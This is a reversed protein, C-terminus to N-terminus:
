RVVKVFKTEYPEFTLNAEIRLLAEECVNVESWSSISGDPFISRLDLGAGNGAIERLHLIVGAKDASPRASILLLNSGGTHLMSISALKGADKRAPLVRSVFPMRSGWGFRGAIAESTDASSTLYYSFRLEGEQSAKFNTVWYNNMVWSYVHPKNVESVYQFKGTNIEGFQMLPIEDSGIVVQGLDGSVRAFGQVTNWDSATGPLQNVGPTVLGGQAEYELRAGPMNLPFAVYISEPDTIGKRMIRFHFEIRKAVNYLRIECEVGDDGLCCPSNGVITLSKWLEGEVSGNVRVNALTTRTYDELKFQELQHRNGLTEYIFQGFGYLADADVLELNLDKDFLSTVNGTEPDIVLRYYDNELVSDCNGSQSVSECNEDSVEIRYTKFGFSPIDEVWLGWYSGDTRGSLWHAKIQSGEDDVIRFRKEKPIITHDIYVRHFGSRTWNLTNFISITPVEASTLCPQLLGMTMERLVRLDKVASWVYASKEAWQVVSNEALPDSISEAAGFTHEDFFLLADQIAQVKEYTQDPLESGLLRAMALLGQDVILDCQAGRAAATERAGSGFGDTWWDPWAARITELQEAHNNKVYDMFEQSTASRLRPWDYKENWRRIVDCTSISPPSNDTFYGSYQVAIRDFPYGKEELGALYDFLQNEFGDYNDIHIGCFNGTNYHDARFALVRKGSPSAWWFPTPMEFPILARHGHEGMIVYEVGVDKFYDVLCWAIGNVDNQMATRVKLGHEKFLRIPQLFATLINEDPIESMNFMMGTLEIRGENVRRRLREIQEKPRTRVYERVPWSAECTWRFRADDPHDDTQDCFDLAYDIYRLHDPLIESQRRTYGIDTHTHQVLYVTWPKVPRLTLVEDLVEKENLIARIRVDKEVDTSPFDLLVRSYGLQVAVTRDPIGDAQVTLQNPETLCNVDLRILQCPRNTSKLRVNLPTVSISGAPNASFAMYWADSGAKEGVVKLILPKGVEVSSVPVTLSMLGFYDGHKDQTCSRFELRGGGEGTVIWRDEAASRFTFASSENVMLTFKKDGLNAGIGVYWIFEVKEAKQQFRVTETEWEIAMQGDTARVLLASNLQPIPTGYDITQGSVSKDFGKLFGPDGCQMDVDM